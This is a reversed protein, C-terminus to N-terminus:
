ARWPHLKDRCLFRARTDALPFIEAPTTRTRSIYPQILAKVRIQLFQESDTVSPHESVPFAIRSPDPKSNRRSVALPAPLSGEVGSLIVDEKM